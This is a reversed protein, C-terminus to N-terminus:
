RCGTMFRGFRSTRVLANTVRTTKSPRPRDADLDRQSATPGLEDAPLSTTRAPPAILEGCSRWSDPTPSAVSSAARPM